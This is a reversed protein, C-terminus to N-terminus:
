RNKNLQHIFGILNEIRWFKEEKRFIRLFLLRGQVTM